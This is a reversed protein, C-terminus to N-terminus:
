LLNFEFVWLYVSVISIIQTKPKKTEFILKLTIEVYKPKLLELIVFYIMYPWNANINKKNAEM